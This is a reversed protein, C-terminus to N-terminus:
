GSPSGPLRHKHWSAPSLKRRLQKIAPSGAQGRRSTQRCQNACARVSHTLRSREQSAHQKGARTSFAVHVRLGIGGQYWWTVSLARKVPAQMEPAHKNDASAGNAVSKASMQAANSSCHQEVDHHSRSNCAQKSQQQLSSVSSSTYLHELEGEGDADDGGEIYSRERSCQQWEAAQRVSGRQCM